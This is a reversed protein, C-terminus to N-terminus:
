YHHTPYTSHSDVMSCPCTSVTPTIALLMIPQLLPGLKNHLAHPDLFNVASREHFPCHRPSDEETNIGRWAKTTAARINLIRRPLLLLSEFSPLLPEVLRTTELTVKSLAHARVEYFQNSRVIQCNVDM